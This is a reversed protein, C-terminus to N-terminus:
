DNPVTSLAKQKAFIAEFRREVLLYALIGAISSLFVKVFIIIKWDSGFPMGTESELKYAFISVVTGVPIHALYISFSSRGILYPIRMRSATAIIGNNQATVVTVIFMLCLAIVQFNMSIAWILIFISATQTVSSWNRSPLNAAAVGCLFGAICRVVSPVGDIIDISDFSNFLTVYLIAGGSLCMLWGMRSIIILPFVLYAIIEVAISWLPTNFYYCSGSINQSFILHKIISNAVCQNSIEQDGFYAWKLFTFAVAVGLWFYYNPLIKQLRRKLYKWSNSLANSGRIKHAYNEHMIFGSLIFFFDVFIFSTLFYNQVPNETFGKGTSGLMAHYGIVCLAAMGRIATHSYLEGDRPTLSNAASKGLEVGLIM